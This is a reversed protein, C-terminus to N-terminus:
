IWFPMTVSKNWHWIQRNNGLLMNWLVSYKTSSSQLIMHVSFLSPKTGNVWCWPVVFACRQTYLFLVLLMLSFSFFGFLHCFSTCRDARQQWAIRETDRCTNCASTCIAKRRCSRSLSTQIAFWRPLCLCCRGELAFPCASGCGMRFSRHEGLEQLVVQWQLWTKLCDRWFLSQVWNNGSSLIWFNILQSPPRTSLM